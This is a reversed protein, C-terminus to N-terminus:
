VLRSTVAEHSDKAHNIILQAFSETEAEEKEVANIDLMYFVDLCYTNSEVNYYVHEGRKVAFYAPLDKLPKIYDDVLKPLRMLAFKAVFGREKMIKPIEEESIEFYDQVWEKDLKFTKIFSITENETNASIELSVEKAVLQRIGDVLQLYEETLEESSKIYEKKELLNQNFEELLMDNDTLLLHVDTDITKNELYADLQFLLANRIIEPHNPNLLERKADILEQGVKNLRQMM